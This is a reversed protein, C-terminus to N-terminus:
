ADDYCFVSFGAHGQKEEGDGDSKEKTTTFDNSQANTAQLLELLFDYHLNKEWCTLDLVFNMRVTRSYIM